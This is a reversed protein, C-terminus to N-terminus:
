KVLIKQGNVIYLGTPLAKVDSDPMRMGQLNYIICEGTGVVADVVELGSSDETITIQHPATVVFSYTGDADAQLASDDVSVSVKKDKKPAIQIKTAALVEYGVRDTIPRIEDATVDVADFGKESFTLPYFAPEDDCDVFIKAVSGESLTFNYAKNLFGGSVGVLEDNVFVYPMGYGECLSLPNDDACVM